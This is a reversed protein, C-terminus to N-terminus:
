FGKAYIVENLVTSRVEDRLSEELVLDVPRGLLDELAHKLRMFNRFSVDALKVLIDIDSAADAEGRAALGFVGIREVGMERLASAHAEITAVIQRPDAPAPSHASSRGVPPARGALAAVVAPLRGEAICDHPPRGHLEGSAEM